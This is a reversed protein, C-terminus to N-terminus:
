VTGLKLTVNLEDSVMSRFSKFLSPKLITMFSPMHAPRLKEILPQSFFSPRQTTVICRSSSPPM